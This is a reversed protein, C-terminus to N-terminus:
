KHKYGNRVALMRLGEQTKFFDLDKETESNLREYRQVEREWQRKESNKVGMQAFQIILVIVLFVLLLVGAATTGIAIRKKKPTEAEDKVVTNNKQAM